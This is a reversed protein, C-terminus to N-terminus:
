FLQSGSGRPHGLSLLSGYGLRPGQFRHFVVSPAAAQRASPVGRAVRSLRLASKLTGSLPSTCAAPGRHQRCRDFPGRSLPPSSLREGRRDDRVHHRQSVCAPGLGCNAGNDPGGDRRGRLPTVKKGRRLILRRIALFFLARCLAVGTSLLLFNMPM